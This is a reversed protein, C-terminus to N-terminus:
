DPLRWLYIGARFSGAAAYRGNPSISFGQAGIANDYSQVEIFKGTALDLVQVVNNSNSTLLRRGDPSLAANPAEGPKGGLDFEHVLKGGQAEWVRVTQDKGWAVIREGGPLFAASTVEAKPEEFKRVLGGTTADWLRVSKDPGYSLVLKGDPSFVGSCAESHGELTHLLKGGDPDWLRLTKDPSFTLIQKGDPSFRGSCRDAHGELKALEKGTELEYVHIVKDNGGALYRKGDASVDVTQPDAVPGPLKRILKGAPVDWLFLDREHTYWTLLRKGDPLVLGGSYWPDGGPVFRQVLKGAAVDWLRIEGKPGADGGALFVKGDPTFKSWWINANTKQQEDAWTLHVVEGVPHRRKELLDDVDAWLQRWGDREGDPLKGLADADRVGALDADERWHTLSQLAANRTGPFESVVRDKEAAFDARLWALAQSRLLAREEAKEPADTGQGCGALAASCAARYRVGTRPNNAAEPDADM